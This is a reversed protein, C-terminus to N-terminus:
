LVGEHGAGAVAEQALFLIGDVTENLAADVQAFEGAAVLAGGGGVDAHPGPVERRCKRGADAEVVVEVGAEGEPPRGHIETGAEVAGELVALRQIYAEDVAEALFLLAGDLGEIKPDVSKVRTMRPPP